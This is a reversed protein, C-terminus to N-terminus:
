EPVDETPPPPPRPASISAQAPLGLGIAHARRYLDVKHHRSSPPGAPEAEGVDTLLQKLRGTEAKAQRALQAGLRKLVDDLMLRYDLWEAQLQLPALREGRLVSWAGALRSSPKEM